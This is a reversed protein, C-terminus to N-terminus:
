DKYKSYLNNDYILKMAEINGNQAAKNLWYFAKKPNTEVHYPQNSALYSKGLFFMAETNDIEASLALYQNAQEIQGQTKYIYALALYANARYHRPQKSNNKDLFVDFYKKALDLDQKVGIRYTYFIGLFYPSTPCGKKYLEIFAKASDSYDSNRYLSYAKNYENSICAYSVQMSLNLFIFTIVLIIKNKFSQM